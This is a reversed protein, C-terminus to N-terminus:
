PQQTIVVNDVGAEILSATSADAAEFRIRVTQGAFSSINVSAAAYAGARNAASGLQQFVQTTTSGVVFVRFFDASTANNLHALYWSFSLTLTGTSPLTIEASHVSTTGADVDNVGASAGALRATVMANVGSPTTGVQLAVGSATAEPDGREWAGTTATDTGNPNTTWGRATEFDDSFVTVVGGGNVTLNFSASRVLTGSTGNIQRTSTSSATGAAASIIVTGTASGNAPPTVSTTNCTVGTPMPGCALNVQGNFGNQSSVTCTSNASGGATVAVNTCSVTFDPTGGGATPTAPVCNSVQTFCSASSGQAVVNYFYERGNAVRLDTFTTGTQNSILAKGNNCGAVGETRFVWYRSAGAVGPWSLSVQSNGASASLAPATTPGGACGSQAAPTACAIGHRNFAAFIANRHPTGDNVSGNDDDATLWQMYGNTAGCGSSSSGCTCAHWSGVNGSGQYFLRNGIVFSSQSSFGAAPLDFAVLDWAAQRTPAASCHVQRGCPGPGTLCSTCVFNLPTDATSPSHKRFDADRVGSCDTACHAAGQQAENANRGTGDATLGCTGAPPMFFGHGVCSDQYRYIAAIDAYGESSSSLSGNADFDDMGHGWEHDFVGALEGTNRCGGGSRYFNISSGNWFANCTSNINVNAALQTNLLWTNSPLWGRAMEQLKNVEYFATRSAATNGAGGVGPTQCDHQGNTGGLALNGTTSSLSIAGCTDAIRVFDGSLTTTTTGSVWDFVGASDAFNNPAALGTNAFPMPWGPQMVGCKAPVTCVGTSTVPYVGGTVQRDAYRNIDQFSMVEGTHADVMAEWQALEPLRQFVFTWALRHGYGKGVGGTFAEDAQLEPPAFPIIELRPERVMLDHAARGDAHAFGAEVAVEAKIRPAVDLKVNGWTEAGMVVMNGHSISAALRADRVPIGALSQPIHIQWLEPNIQTIRAEGLQAVDIGLVARNENVFALVADRVVAADVDAVQRGLRQSLSSLTVQNGVGKGPIMPVPGMLNSVVGSRHDLYVVFKSEGNLGQNRALFGDWAARNSLQPLLEQLEVHSSSIYLEPRFFEKEDLHSSAQKPNAAWAPASSLGCCVFGLLAYGRWSRLSRSQPM